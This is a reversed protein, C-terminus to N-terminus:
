AQPTQLHHALRVHVERPRGAVVQDVDQVHQADLGRALGQHLLDAVDDLKVAAVDVVAVQGGQNVAHGAAAVEHGDGAVADVAVLIPGQTLAAKLLGDVDQEPPGGRRQEWTDPGGPM